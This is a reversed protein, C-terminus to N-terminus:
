PKGSFQLINGPQGETAEPAAMLYGQILEKMADLVIM